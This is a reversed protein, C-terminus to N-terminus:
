SHNLKAPFSSQSEAKVTPLIKSKQGNLQGTLRDFDFASRTM